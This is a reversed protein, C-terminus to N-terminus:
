RAVCACYLRAPSSLLWELVRYVGFLDSQRRGRRGRSAPFAFLRAGESCSCFRARDVCSVGFQQVLGLRGCHFEPVPDDSKSADATRDSVRPGAGRM